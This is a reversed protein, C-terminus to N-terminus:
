DIERCTTISAMKWPLEDVTPPVFANYAAINEKEM